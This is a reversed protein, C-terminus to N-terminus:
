LSREVQRLYTERKTELFKIYTDFTLRKVCRLQWHLKHYGHDYIKQPNFCQGGYMKIYYSSKNTNSSYRIKAVVDDIVDTIVKKGDTNYYLETIEVSEQKKKNFIKKTANEINEHEYRSM